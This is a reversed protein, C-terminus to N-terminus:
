PVREFQVVETFVDQGSKRLTWETTFRQDDHLRYVVKYMHQDDLDALNTASVFDFKLTKGDPSVESLDMRPQNNAGCYHKLVFEGLDMHYLTILNSYQPTSEDVFREMLVTGGSVLEYMLSVNKGENTTGHWKGVLTKMKEFATSATKENGPAGAWGTQTLLAVLLITTSVRTVKM